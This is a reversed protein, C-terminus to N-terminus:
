NAWEVSWSWPKKADVPWGPARIATGPDGDGEKSQGGSPREELRASFGGVGMFRRWNRAVVARAAPAEARGLGAWSAVVAGLRM